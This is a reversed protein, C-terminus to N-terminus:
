ATEKANLALMSVYQQADIFELDVVERYMITALDWERLRSENGDDMVREEDTIVRNRYLKPLILRTQPIGIAMLDRTHMTMWDWHDYLYIEAFRQRVMPVTLEEPSIIESKFILDKGTYVAIAKLIAERVLPSLDVYPWFNVTVKAINTDPRTLAQLSHHNLGYALRMLIPTVTSHRLIVSTRRAWLDRWQDKDIPIIKSFDDIKRHIYEDSSALAVAWEPHISDVLGIRTDLIADLSVLYEGQSM